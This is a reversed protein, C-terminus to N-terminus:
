PTLNFQKTIEPNDTNWVAITARDIDILSIEESILDTADVDLRFAYEVTRPKGTPETIDLYVTMLKFTIKEPDITKDAKALPVLAKKISESLKDKKMNDNKLLKNVDEIIKDITIGNNATSIDNRCFIRKGKEDSTVGLNLKAGLFDFTMGAMVCLKDTTGM